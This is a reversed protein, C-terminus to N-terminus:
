FLEGVLRASSSQVYLTSQKRTSQLIPEQHSYLISVLVLTVMTLVDCSDVDTLKDGGTIKFRVCPNKVLENDFTASLLLPDTRSIQMYQHWVKRVVLSVFPISTSHPTPIDFAQDFPSASTQM